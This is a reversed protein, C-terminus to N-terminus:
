PTRTLKHLFYPNAFTTLHSYCSAYQNSFLRWFLTPPRQYGSSNLSNGKIALQNWAFICSACLALCSICSSTRCYLSGRSIWAVTCQCICQKSCMETNTTSFSGKDRSIQAYNGRKSALQSPPDAVFPWSLSCAFVNPVNFLNKFEVVAIMADFHQYIVRHTSWPICMCGSNQAVLVSKQKSIEIVHISFYM